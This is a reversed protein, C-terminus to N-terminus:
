VKEQLTQTKKRLLKRIYGPIFKRKVSNDHDLVKKSVLHLEAAEDFLNRMIKLQDKADM